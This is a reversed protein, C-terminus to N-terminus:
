PGGFRQRLAMVDDVYQQTAAFMGNSRVSELGQVYGAVALRVDGGTALLLAHLYLVGARM